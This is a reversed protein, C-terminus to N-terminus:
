EKVAEFIVSRAGLMWGDDALSSLVSVSYELTVAGGDNCEYLAVTAEPYVLPADWGDGYFYKFEMQASLCVSGKVLMDISSLNESEQLTRKAKFEFTIRIHTYGGLALAQLDMDPDFTETREDNPM